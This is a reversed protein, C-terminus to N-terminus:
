AAQEKPNRVEVCGASVYSVGPRQSISNAALAAEAQCAEMSAAQFGTMQIAPKGDPGSLFIVIFALFHPM